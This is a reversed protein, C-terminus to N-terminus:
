PRTDLEHILVIELSRASGGPQWFVYWNGYGTPTASVGGFEESQFATTGLRRDYADRELSDLTRNVAELEGALRPDSELEGMVEDAAPWFGAIEYAM